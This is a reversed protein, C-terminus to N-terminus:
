QAPSTRNQLLKERESEFQNIASGLTITGQDVETCLRQRLNYLFVLQHDDPFKRITTTWQYTIEQDHCYNSDDHLEDLISEQHPTHGSLPLATKAIIGSSFLTLVCVLIFLKM